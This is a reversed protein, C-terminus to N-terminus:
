IVSRPLGSEYAMPRHLVQPNADNRALESEHVLAGRLRSKWQPRGPDAGNYVSARRTPWLQEDGM